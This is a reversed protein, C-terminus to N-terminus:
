RIIRKVFNDLINQNEGQYDSKMVEDLVEERYHPDVRYEHEIEVEGGVIPQGYYKDGNSRYSRRQSQQEEETMKSAQHLLRSALNAFTEAQEFQSAEGNELTYKMAEIAASLREASRPAMSNLKEELKKADQVNTNEHMRAVPWEKSMEEKSRTDAGHLKKSIELQRRQLEKLEDRASVLGKNREQDREEREKDELKELEDIWQRYYSVLGSLINLSEKNKTADNKLLKEFEKTIHHEVVVEKGHKLLEPHSLRQVRLKWRHEREQLYTLIKEEAFHVNPDNTELLHSLGRAAIFFDRDRERDDLMEHEHLFRGLNQQLQYVIRMDPKQFNSELAEKIGQIRRRDTSDFFPSLDAEKQAENLIKLNDPHLKANTKNVATDLNDKLAKLQALTKRYKGYSSITQVVIPNSYGVLPVPVSQDIAEAVIEVKAFDSEVYRDLYVSHTTTLNFTTDGSIINVSEKFKRSNVHIMLNVASLPHKANVKILLDLPKDDIWQEEIPKFSQMRVKPNEGEQVDFKALEKQSFQPIFLYSSELVSFEIRYSRATNDKDENMQFSQIPKDDINQRLEIIPSHEGNSPFYVVEILNNQAVKLSLISGAKLSVPNNATKDIAGQVLKLKVGRQALSKLADQARDVFSAGSWSWLFASFLFIPFSYGLINLLRHREVNRIDLLMDQFRDKWESHFDEDEWHERIYISKKSDPFKIDLALLLSDEPPVKIKWDNVMYFIFIWSLLGVVLAVSISEPNMKFFILSLTLAYLFCIPIYLFTRMLFYSKKIRVIHSILTKAFLKKNTEM